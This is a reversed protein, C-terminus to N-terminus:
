IDKLVVKLNEFLTYFDNAMISRKDQGDYFNYKLLTVGSNMILELDGGICNKEILLETADKLFEEKLNEVNKTILKAKYYYYKKPKM